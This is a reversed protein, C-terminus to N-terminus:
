GSGLRVGLRRVAAPSMSPVTDGCVLELTGEPCTMLWVGDAPVLTSLPEGTLMTTDLPVGEADGLGVAEPTATGLTYPMSEVVALLM